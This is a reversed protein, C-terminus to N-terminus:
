FGQELCWIKSSVLAGNNSINSCWGPAAAWRQVRLQNRPLQTRKKRVIGQERNGIGEARATGLEGSGIGSEGCEMETQLPARSRWGRRWGSVFYCRSPRHVTQAPIADTPKPPCFCARGPLSARF